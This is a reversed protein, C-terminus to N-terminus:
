NTESTIAYNRVQIDQPINDMIVNIQIPPMKGYKGSIAILKTEKAAIEKKKDVKMKAIDKIGEIIIEYADPKLKEREDRKLIELAKLAGCLHFFMLFKEEGYEFGYTNKFEGPKYSDKDGFGNYDYGGIFYEKRYFKKHKKIDVDTISIFDRELIIYGGWKEPIYRIFWPLKSEQEQGSLIEQMEHFRNIYKATFITGKTGILKHAIFECGKKTIRYCPRTEGKSDEYTSEQFFDVVAINCENFQAMYRRLDRLLMAHGKGIMEAVERSDLTQEIKKM